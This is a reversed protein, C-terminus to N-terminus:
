QESESKNRKDNAGQWRRPSTWKSFSSATVSRQDLDQEPLQMPM